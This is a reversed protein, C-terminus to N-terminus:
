NKIKMDEIHKRVRPNIKLFVTTYATITNYTECADTHSSGVLSTVLTHLVYWVM